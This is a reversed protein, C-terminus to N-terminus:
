YDADPRELAFLAAVFTKADEATAFPEVDLFENRVVVWGHDGSTFLADGALLPRVGAFFKRIVGGGFRKPQETYATWLGTVHDHKWVLTVPRVWKTPKVM